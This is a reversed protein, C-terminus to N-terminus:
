AKAEMVFYKLWAALAVQRWLMTRPAARGNFWGDKTADLLERFDDPGTIWEQEPTAFGVKDRRWVISEPLDREVAMRAIWKTWGDRIRVEVPSAFVSEVLEHDLFPVRAEISFAMSNRDEYRLLHPLSGSQLAAALDAGLDKPPPASAVGFRQTAHQLVENKMDSALPSADISQHFMRNRKWGALPQM